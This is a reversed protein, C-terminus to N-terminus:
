AVPFALGFPQGLTCFRATAGPAHGRRVCGPRGVSCSCRCSAPLPMAWFLRVRWRGPSRASRSRAGFPGSPPCAWPASPPQRQHSGYCRRPMAPAVAGRRAGCRGSARRGRRPLRVCGMAAGAGGPLGALPGRRARRGGLGAGAARSRGAPTRGLRRCRPLRPRRGGGTVPGAIRRSRRRARLRGASGAMGLAVARGGWFSRSRSAGVAPLFRGPNSGWFLGPKWGGGSWSFSGASPDTFRGAISCANSLCQKLM